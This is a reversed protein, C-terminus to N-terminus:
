RHIKIINNGQKIYYCFTISSAIKDGYLAENNMYFDIIEQSTGEPFVIDAFVTEDKMMKFGTFAEGLRESINFMTPGVTKSDIIEFTEHLYGDPLSKSIPSTSSTSFKVNNEGIVFAVTIPDCEDISLTKGDITIKAKDANIGYTPRGKDNVGTQIASYEAVIVDVISEFEQNNYTGVSNPNNVGIDIEKGNQNIGLNQNTTNADGYRLAYTETYIQTKYESTFVYEGNIEEIVGNELLGDIFGTYKTGENKKAWSADLMRIATDWNSSNTIDAIGSNSKTHAFALLAVVNADLGISNFYASNELIMLASNLAHNSRTVNGANTEELITPSFEGTKKNFHSDIGKILGNSSAGMGVDHWIAAAYLEYYNFQGQYKSDLSKEINAMAQMSMDAVEIVHGETHTRYTKFADLSGALESAEQYYDLVNGVLNSTLNNIYASRQSIPKANEILFLNNVFNSNIQSTISFFAILQTDDYANLKEAIYDYDVSSETKLILDCVSSAENENLGYENLVEMIKPKDFGMNSLDGLNIADDKLNLLNEIYSADGIKSYDIEVGSAELDKFEDYHKQLFESTITVGSNIVVEGGNLYAALIMGDIGAELVNEWNIEPKEGTAMYKLYPDLIEQLSEEVGESFIRTLFSKDAIKSVGPIGGLLYELGAESAGSLAGYFWSSYLDYGQQYASEASTGTVSCFMTFAGLGELGFVSGLTGALMSPLMNGEAMSLNYVKELANFEGLVGLDVNSNSQALITAIFMAEYQDATIDKSLSNSPSLFVEMGHGFQELGDELGKFHTKIYDQYKPDELDITSLFNLANILGERQNIEANKSDLYEKFKDLGQNTYITYAEEIESDQMYEIRSVFDTVTESQYFINAANSEKTKLSLAIDLNTVNKSFASEVKSWDIKEGNPLSKDIDETTIGKNKMTNILDDYSDYGNYDYNWEYGNYKKYGMEEAAFLFPAYMALKEFQELEEETLEKGYSLYKKINLQKLLEEKEKNLNGIEELKNHINNSYQNIQSNLIAEKDYENVLKYGTAPNNVKYQELEEKLANMEQKLDSIQKQLGSTQNNLDNIQSEINEIDSMPQVQNYDVVGDNDNDFATANKYDESTLNKPANKIAIPGIFTMKKTVTKNNTLISM